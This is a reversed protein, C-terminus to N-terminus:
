KSEQRVYDTARRQGTEGRLSGWDIKLRSYDPSLTVKSYLFPSASPVTLRVTDTSASGFSLIGVFSLQDGTKALPTWYLSGNKKVVIFDGERSDYQGAMKKPISACGCIVAVFIALLCTFRM